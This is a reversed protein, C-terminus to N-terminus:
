YMFWLKSTCVYTSRVTCHAFQPSRVCWSFTDRAALLLRSQTRARAEGAVADLEGDLAGLVLRAVVREDRRSGGRALVRRLLLARLVVQAAEVERAERVLLQVKCLLLYICTCYMSYTYEYEASLSLGCQRVLEFLELLVHPLANLFHRYESDPLQLALLNGTPARCHERDSCHWRNKM